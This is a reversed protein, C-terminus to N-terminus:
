LDIMQAEQLDLNNYGFMVGNKINVDNEPVRKEM